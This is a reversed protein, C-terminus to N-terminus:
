YWWFQRMCKLQQYADFHVMRIHTVPTSNHVTKIQWMNWPSYPDFVLKFRCMLPLQHRKSNICFYYTSILTFFIPNEWMWSNTRLVVFFTSIMFLGVCKWIVGRRNTYFTSFFFAINSCFSNQLDIWKYWIYGNIISKQKVKWSIPIFIFVSPSFTSMPERDAWRERENNGDRHMWKFIRNIFWVFVGRNRDISHIIPPHFRSCLRIAGYFCISRYIHSTVCM